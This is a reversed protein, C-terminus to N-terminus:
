GALALVFYFGPNWAQCVLYLQGNHEHWVVNHLHDVHDLGLDEKPRLTALLTYDEADLIYIPAPRGPEPDDLSGVVAYWRGGRHLYDIGCPRSGPPLGHSAAPAGDFTVIEIRSHPRDAVALHTGAPVRAIGHATGFLGHHHDPDATKGGFFGTWQRARLDATSIFQAGYGDAVFLREGDWVSDTPHFPTEADLYAELEPRPLIFDVDGDLTVVAVLGESNASLFLRPQGDLLGLRTSHMNHPTLSAPLGILDQRALDPSIRLLGCGPMGYYLHGFGPRADAGFTGHLHVEFEQAAAPVARLDPLHTFTFPAQGTTLTASM